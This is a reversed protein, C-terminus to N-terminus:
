GPVVILITLIRQLRDSDIIRKIGTLKNKYSLNIETPLLLNSGLNRVVLLLHNYLMNRVSYKFYNDTTLGFAVDFIVTVAYVNLHLFSTILYLIPGKNNWATVVHAAFVKGWKSM